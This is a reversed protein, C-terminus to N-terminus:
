PLTGLVPDKVQQTEPRPNLTNTNPRLPTGAAYSLRCHKCCIGGEPKSRPEFTHVAGRAEKTVLYKFDKHARVLKRASAELTSKLPAAPPM